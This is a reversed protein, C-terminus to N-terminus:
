EDADDEDCEHLTVMLPNKVLLVEKKINLQAPQPLVIYGKAKYSRVMADFAADAKNRETFTERETDDGFAPHEPHSGVDVHWHTQAATVVRRYKHGNVRIAPPAASTRKSM